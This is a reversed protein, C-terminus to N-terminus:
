REMNTSAPYRSACTMRTHICMFTHICMGKSDACDLGVLTSVVATLSRLDVDIMRVANNDSDAVAVRFGTRATSALDVSVGVPSNFVASLAAGDRFRMPNDPTRALGALTTVTVTGGDFDLKRVQPTATLQLTNCHTATHQLTNCHTATHQLTIATHQLTNCHTATHQLSYM